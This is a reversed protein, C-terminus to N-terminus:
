RMVRKQTLRLHVIPVYIEEVWDVVVQGMPHLNLLRLLLQHLVQNCFTYLSFDLTITDLPVIQCRIALLLSNAAKLSEPKLVKTRRNM